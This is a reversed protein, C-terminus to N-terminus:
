DLKGLNEKEIKDIVEETKEGQNAKTVETIEEGEEDIYAIPKNVKATDSEFAYKKLL